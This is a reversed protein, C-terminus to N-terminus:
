CVGVAILFFSRLHFLFDSVLIFVSLQYWYSFWFLLLFKVIINM